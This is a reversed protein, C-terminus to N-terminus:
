RTPKDYSEIRAPDHTLFKAKVYSNVFFNGRLKHMLALGARAFPV